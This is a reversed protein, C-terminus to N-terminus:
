TPIGLKAIDAASAAVCGGQLKIGWNQGQPSLFSLQDRLPLLNIPQEYWQVDDFYLLKTPVPAYKGYIYSESYSSDTVDSSRSITAEAVLHKAFEGSGGVYFLVRLGSTMYRQHKTYKYIPWVRGALRNRVIQFASTRSSRAGHREWHQGDATIFILAAPRYDTSPLAAAM